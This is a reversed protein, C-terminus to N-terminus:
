GGTHAALQTYLALYAKASLEWGFDRRMGNLQLQRWVKKNHYTTIARKVTLLLNEATLEKFVFGTASGNKLSDPTLDTVTDALGGTATVVPPTGYLMSYMQNLGCPEFRSPMLFIDSGAEILHSLGEDFGIVAHFHHPHKRSLALLAKELIPEGTGLIIIQAPEATILSAIGLLLDLGKQHTIRSVVGLLPIDPSVPLNFRRQLAEKNAKKGALRTSSYTKALFTDGAPNWHETDVGNLIGTLHTKRERLLGQLGFGLAESQIEQAYTPSVTTLHDAYFLGAKLFSLNGYYEVGHMSFSEPPLSLQAVSEPPFIGQYALNHITMVSAARRGHTFHLYAPTLGSQWDNCHVIDPAWDLPSAESGLLAAIRSLLGFRLANDPWELGNKDVYPGGVRAYYAPYDVIILPVNSEPMKASFLRVEGLGPIDAIRAIQRKNKLTSLIQTYGPILARVDVKIARLAAPLAGSVDALGGTKILPHIEPTVFLVKLAKKSQTKTPM